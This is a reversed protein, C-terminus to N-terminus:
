KAAARKAKPNKWPQYQTAATWKNVVLAAIVDRRRAGKMKECAYRVFQVPSNVTSPKSPAAQKKEVKKTKATM